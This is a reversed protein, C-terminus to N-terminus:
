IMQFPSPEEVFCVETNTFRRRLWEVLLKMGPIESEAHGLVIAAQSKGTYVADRIYEPTEWEPGEGYIVLEVNEEEFLPIVLSGGGRYGVLVGVKTCKSTGSGILRVNPIALKRKIHKAVDLASLESIVAVAAHRDHKIVFKEWGLVRLLGLTVGDPEYSHIADHCRIVAIKHEEIRQQKAAALACSGHSVDHYHSYFLGEHTIILNAGLEIAREIVYWSCNFAVVVKIVADEPRGFLLGDVGEGQKLHVVQEKLSEWIEQVTTIM